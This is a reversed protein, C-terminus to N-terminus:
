QAVAQFEQTVVLQRFQEVDGKFCLYGSDAAITTGTIVRSADSALFLAVNAVEEPEAVELLHLRKIEPADIFGAQAPTKVFGPAISNVRVGLPSLGAAASRVLAVIAGKAAVYADFGPCGILADVTSTLIISGKRQNEMAQGVHKLCHFTGDLVLHRIKTWVEASLETVRRDHNNVFEASMANHFLVDLRGEAAVIQAVGDAVCNEDTVDFYLTRLKGSPYQRTLDELQSRNVDAAYVVAGEDLFRDVGARGIGQGAGTILVVQNTLNLNM